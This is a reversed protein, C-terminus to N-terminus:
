GSQRCRRWTRRAVRISARGNAQPVLVLTHYRGPPSRWVLGFSWGQWRWVAVTQTESQEERVVLEQRGDDDVDGLEVERLPYVLPRGGWLVKYAGGRFGAIYPQSRQYGAPDPRWLALLLEGRGDDNPDGLALDVV